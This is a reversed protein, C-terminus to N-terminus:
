LIQKITIQHNSFYVKQSNLETLGRFLKEIHVYATYGFDRPSGLNPKERCIADIQTREYERPEGKLIIFYVM